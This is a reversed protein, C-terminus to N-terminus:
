DGGAAADDTGGASDTDAGLEWCWARSGLHYLGDEDPGYEEVPADALWVRLLGASTVEYRFIEPTLAIAADLVKTASALPM